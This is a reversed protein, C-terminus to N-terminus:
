VSRPRRTAVKKTNKWAYVPTGRIFGSSVQITAIKQIAQFGSHSTHIGGPLVPPPLLQFLLGHRQQTMLTM